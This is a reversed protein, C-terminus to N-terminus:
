YKLTTEAEFTLFIAKKDSIFSKFVTNNDLKQMNNHTQALRIYQTVCICHCFMHKKLLTLNMYIKFNEFRQIKVEPNQCSISEFASELQKSSSAMEANLMRM